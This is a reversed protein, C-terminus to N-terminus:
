ILMIFDYANHITPKPINTKARHCGHSDDWISRCHRRYLNESLNFKWHRNAAHVLLFQYFRLKSERLYMFIPNMWYHQIFSYIYYIFNTKNDKPKTDIPMTEFWFANLEGTRTCKCLFIVTYSRIAMLWM